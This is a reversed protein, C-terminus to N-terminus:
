RAGRRNMEFAGLYRQAVRRSTHGALHLEVGALLRPALTPDTLAGRLREALAVILDDCGDGAIDKIEIM